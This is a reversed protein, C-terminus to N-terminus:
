HLLESVSDYVTQERGSRAVTASKAAAVLHVMRFAERITNFEDVITQHQKITHLETFDDRSVLEGLRNFLRMADYGEDGYQRAMAMVTAEAPLPLEHVKHSARWDAHPQGEICETIDEILESETRESGPTVSESEAPHLLSESITCEPGTVASLLALLKNRLSIGELGLLYRRTNVGTHLHSDMPDGYSSSVFITSVGISLAEGAGQLSLGDALAKAIQEIHGSFPATTGILSGLEGIAETEHDGTQKPTEIDLLRYENLVDDIQSFQM